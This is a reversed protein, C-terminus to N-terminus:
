GSLAFNFKVNDLFFITKSTFSITVLSTQTFNSSVMFYNEKFFSHSKTDKSTVEDVFNTYEDLRSIYM